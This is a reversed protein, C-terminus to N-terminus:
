RSSFTCNGSEADTSRVSLMMARMSRRASCSGPADGVRHADGAARQDEVGVRRVEARQIHQEIGELLAM